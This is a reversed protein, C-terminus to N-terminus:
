KRHFSRWITSPALSLRVPDFELVGFDADDDATGFFGAKAAGLGPCFSVLALELINRGDDIGIIGHVVRLPEHRVVSVEVTGDLGVFLGVVDEHLGTLFQADGAALAPDRGKAAGGVGVSLAAKVCPPKREPPTM